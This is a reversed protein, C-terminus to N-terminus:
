QVEISIKIKSSSENTLFLLNFDFILLSSLNAFASNNSALSFASSAECNFVCNIEVMLWSNLVGNYPTTPIVSM